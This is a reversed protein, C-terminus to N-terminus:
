ATLSLEDHGTEDGFVNAFLNQSLRSLIMKSFLYTMITSDRHINYFLGLKPSYPGMNRALEQWAVQRDVM